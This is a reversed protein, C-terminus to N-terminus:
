YVNFHFGGTSVTSLSTNYFAAQRRIVSGNFGPFSVDRVPQSHDVQFATQVLRTGRSM